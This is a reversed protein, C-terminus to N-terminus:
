GRQGPERNVATLVQQGAVIAQDPPWVIDGFGAATAACTLEERTIARYRTTHEKVNWGSTAETLLRFRVTYCPEQSDWDHL